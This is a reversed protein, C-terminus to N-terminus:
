AFQRWHITGSTVLRAAEGGLNAIPDLISVYPTFPGHLQRYELKRYDMYEVSVGAHEFADHDLYNRAGHGTVYTRGGLAGVISLVRDTGAGPQDLSRSDLFRRDRDLGLYEVCAQMGAIVLDVLRQSGGAYTRRVLGLADDRYPAGGLAQELLDLHSRRWDRRDDILVEDIRQGLEVARLPITLWRSGAATKVQVRNVFSGKSFQVDPYHVYVDALRIQEFLGVWPFLMPQSIVVVPRALARAPEAPNGADDMM